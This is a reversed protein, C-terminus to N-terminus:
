KEENSPFKMPQISCIEEAILKPWTQRIKPLVMILNKPMLHRVWDVKGTGNCNYCPFAQNNKNPKGYSNGNCVSCIYEGAECKVKKTM